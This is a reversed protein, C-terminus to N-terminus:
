PTVCMALGEKGQMWVNMPWRQATVDMSLPISFFSMVRGLFSFFARPCGPAFGRQAEPAFVITPVATRGSLRMQYVM